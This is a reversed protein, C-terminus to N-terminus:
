ASATGSETFKKQSLLTNGRTSYHLKVEDAHEGDLSWGNREIEADLKEKLEPHLLIEAYFSDWKDLAEAIKKEYGPLFHNEYNDKSDELYKVAIRHEDIAHMYDVKAQCVEAIKKATGYPTNQQQAKPNFTTMIKSNLDQDGVM